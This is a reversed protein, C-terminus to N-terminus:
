LNVLPKDGAGRAFTMFELCGVGGADKDRGRPPSHRRIPDFVESRMVELM